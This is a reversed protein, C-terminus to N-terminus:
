SPRFDKINLQISKKNNFINVEISYVVDLRLDINKKIGQTINQVEENSLKQNIISIFKDYGRFSIADLCAGSGDILTLKIIKKERGILKISTTSVKKTAFIAGRNEKGVPKMKKIENILEFNIELFKIEKDIYISEIFINEDVDCNKNIIKRFEDINQIPLSLGAAMNHGGFKTFLHNCKQMEQFINYGEISRASGKAGENARTLVITPKYYKEKIRGAVIGAISEHIKDNYVVIVKDNVIDSKELSIETENVANKTLEKRTENLGIIEKALEKAEEENNTTFLKVARSAKFLRGSANICPGINFGYDMEDLEKEAINNQSILEWLGINIKKNNNLTKLGLKTILRNEDILDVIDCVTSISTFVLLEDTNYEVNMFKYFGKIFKYTIGCASLMKFKYKCDKQKPNIITYAKPLIEIIENNRIESKPEHHDIIIIDMNNKNVHNVEDVNTIGIDCTIILNINQTKIYDIAFNNIGYGEKERDPIYYMVNANINKLAKYLITTSTVGDVDYDGYICILENNQIANKVREFAKETGLMDNINYFFTEDEKLYTQMKRNSLMDRNAILTAFIESIGFTECIKSINGKSKRILWNAM